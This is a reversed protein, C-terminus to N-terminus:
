LWNNNDAANFRPDNDSSSAARQKPADFILTNQCTTNGFSRGLKAKAQSIEM